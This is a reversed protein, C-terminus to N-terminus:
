GNIMYKKKIQKVYDETKLNGRGIEKLAEIEKETLIIGEFAMTAIVENVIDETEMETLKKM